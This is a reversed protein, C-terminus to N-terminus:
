SVRLTERRWDVLRVASKEIEETIDLMSQVIEERIDDPLKNDIRFWDKMKTSTADIKEKLSEIETGLSGLAPDGETAEAVIGSFANFQELVGELQAVLPNTGGSAPTDPRAIDSASPLPPPVAANTPKGKAKNKPGM